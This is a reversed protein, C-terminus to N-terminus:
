RLKKMVDYLYGNSLATNIKEYRQQTAANQFGEYYTTVVNNQHLEYRDLYVDLHTNDRNRSSM